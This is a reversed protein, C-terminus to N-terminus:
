RIILVIEVLEVFEVAARALEYIDRDLFVRTDEGYEVRHPLVVGVTPLSVVAVFGIRDVEAGYDASSLAADCRVVEQTLASVV